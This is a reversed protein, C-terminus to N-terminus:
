SPTKKRKLEADVLSKDMYGKVLRFCIYFTYAWHILYVVGLNYDRVFDFTSTYGVLRSCLIFLVHLVYIVICQIKLM